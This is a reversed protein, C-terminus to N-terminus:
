KVPYMGSELILNELDLFADVVDPAFQTGRGERIIAMAQDHPMARKYCRNTRLADYVDAVAMIRASLPIEAGALGDPYGKGDWREHHSRAISIGMDVIVNGPYEKRVAELTQAGIMTHQKMLDFEGPDLRGPKLLIRDPIGVKGIDHLPSANYINNIFVHDIIDRYGSEEALKEALVRCLIRVRELHKGTDDDRYESLKAMALITANWSNVIEDVKEAVLKELERNHMELQIQMQRLKLHTKVRTRVEEIEFPRTIYDVCGMGFARIKSKMENQSSIFIVPVDHLRSDGKLHECFAFGDIDPMVIDLLVLDLENGLAWELALRSDLFPYVTYGQEHLMSEMLRLSSRSDDVVMICSDSNAM